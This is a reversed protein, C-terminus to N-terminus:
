RPAKIIKAKSFENKLGGENRYYKRIMDIERRPPVVGVAALAKRVQEPTMGRSAAQQEASSEGNKAEADRETGVEREKSPDQVSEKTIGRSLCMVETFDCVEVPPQTPVNVGKALLSDWDQKLDEYAFYYPTITEGNGRRVALGQCGFMPISVGELADATSQGGRSSSSM